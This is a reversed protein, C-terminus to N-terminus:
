PAAIRVGDEVKDSPHIVVQDGASLGSTVEVDSASRHGIGLMQLRARGQVAVFTAWGDRQRFVASSPVVMVDDKQWTVIHAEVRYGDGLEARREIPEDFDIIVSVRQEEVGLASLRTFASPEIVSV